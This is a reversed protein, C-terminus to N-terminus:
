PPTEEEGESTGSPNGSASLAVIIEAHNGNKAITRPTLGSGSDIDPDAGFKVLLKVMAVDDGLVAVRLPQWAPHIGNPDAGEEALLWEAVDLRGEEAAWYLLSGGMFSIEDVTKGSTEVSRQIETLSADRSLLHIVEDEAGVLSTEHQITIRPRFVLIAAM